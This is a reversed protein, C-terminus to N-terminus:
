KNWLLPLEWRGIPVRMDYIRSYRTPSPKQMDVLAWRRACKETAKSRLPAISVHNAGRTEWARKADASQRDIDNKKTAYPRRTGRAMTLGDLVM